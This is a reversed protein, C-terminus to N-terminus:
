SAQGLLEGLLDRWNHTWPLTAWEELPVWRAASTTGGLDLVRPDSPEPCSARYVLRVAQFDEITARPSRGIWHSTQVSALEGLVVQQATEEVVERIVADAPQEGADIGGGPMGWRGEVATRDSYETALLGRSSVVVAYAAFRQRVQPRVGPPVVLGADQGRRGLRPRPEGDLARVQLVLRLDDEATRVAQLPRVLAYGADHAVVTPDAGHELRVDFLPAAGVAPDDGAVGVVRM